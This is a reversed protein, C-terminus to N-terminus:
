GGIGCYVWLEQGYAKDSCNTTPSGNFNGNAPSVPSKHFVHNPAYFASTTPSVPLITSHPDAPHPALEYTRHSVTTSQSPTARLDSSETRKHAHSGELDVSNLDSGGQFKPDWSYTLVPHPDYISGSDAALM